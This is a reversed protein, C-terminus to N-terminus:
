GLLQERLSACTAADIRLTNEIYAEVSGDIAIMEARAAELCAGDVTMFRELGRRDEADLYVGRAALAQEWRYLMEAARPELLEISRLYDRQVAEWPAGLLVLLVASAIGTRDRGTGCHFVLPRATEDAILRLLAAFEGAHHRVLAVYVESWPPFHSPDFTEMFRDVGSGRGGPLIPIAVSRVSGPLRDPHMSAERNSRLDVVTRIELVEFRALDPDTLASLEGSRYVEGPIVLGHRGPIGGLDRFNPQGEFV